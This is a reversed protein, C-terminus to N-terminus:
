SVNSYYPDSGFPHPPESSDFPHSIEPSWLPAEVKPSENIERIWFINEIPFSLTNGERFQIAFFNGDGYTQEVDSYVLLDDVGTPADILKIRVEM